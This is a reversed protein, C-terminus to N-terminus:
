IGDPSSAKPAMKYGCYLKDTERSQKQKVELAM